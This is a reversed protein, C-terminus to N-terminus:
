IIEKIYLKFGILNEVMIQKIYFFNSKTSYIELFSIYSTVINLTFFIISYLAFSVVSSYILSTVFNFTLGIIFGLNFDASTFFDDIKITM